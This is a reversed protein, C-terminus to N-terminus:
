RRATVVATEFPFVVGDDDTHAALRATLDDVLARYADVPLRQDITGVPSSATEAIMLAEASPIRLPTIDIRRHVNRFGAAGVLEGLRHLDGLAYPSSIARAVADGVHRALTDVLVAYGPQHALPRCTAVGMRGGDATVRHMEALAVDPAAFFQLGHQCFVADFTQDGYPLDTADAQDWTVRAEVDRSVERAVALMAPNCDTGSIHGRGGVLRAAHRTVVGTGCALDLVRAGRAPAVTAVLDAAWGDLLAPVLNHEYGWAGAEDLQWGEVLALDTM